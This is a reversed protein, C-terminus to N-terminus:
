PNSVVLIYGDSANLTFVGTPSLITGATITGFNASISSLTSVALKSATISGTALLNGKLFINGGVIDFVTFPDGGAARLLFKETDIAVYAGTPTSVIYFGSLRGDTILQIQAAATAGAPTAAATLKMNLNASIYNNTNTLAADLNTAYTSIASTTTSLTAIQSTHTSITSGQSTLAGEATDLRSEHTTVTGTLAEDASVRAVTEEEVSAALTDTTAVVSNIRVALASGPGTATEVQSSVEARM